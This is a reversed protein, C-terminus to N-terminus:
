STSFHSILTFRRMTPVIFRAQPLSRAAAVPSRTIAFCCWSPTAIPLIRRSRYFSLGPTRCMTSFSHSSSSSPNEAADRAPDPQSISTTSVGGTGGGLLTFLNTRFILSLALLLITGGIGLHPGFQFGGGGGEDRRDEIDGSEGGSSWKMSEIEEDLVKSAADKPFAREYALVAAASKARENSKTPAVTTQHCNCQRPWNM